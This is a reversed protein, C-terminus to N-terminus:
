WSLNFSQFQNPDNPLLPQTGFLKIKGGPYGHIKQAVHEDGVRPIIPHYLTILSPPKQGLYSTKPLHGTFEVPGCINGRIISQVNVHHISLVIPYLSEIV